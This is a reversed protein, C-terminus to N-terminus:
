ETNPDSTTNQVCSKGRSNKIQPSVRRISGKSLPSHRTLSKRRSTPTGSAATHVSTKKKISLPEVSSATDPAQPVASKPTARTNGSSVFPQRKSRVLPTDNEHQPLPPSPLSSSMVSPAADLAVDPDLSPLEIARSKQPSKPPLPSPSRPGFPRRETANNSGS